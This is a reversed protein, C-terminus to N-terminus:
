HKASEKANAHFNGTERQLLHTPQSRHTFSGKGRQRDSRAAQATSGTGPQIWEASDSACDCRTQAPSRPALLWSGGPQEGQVPSPKRELSLRPRHPVWPVWPLPYAM